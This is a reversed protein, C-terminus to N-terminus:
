KNRKKSSSRVDNSHSRIEPIPLDAIKCDDIDTFSDKMWNDFDQILEKYRISFGPIANSDGLKELKRYLSTLSLDSGEPTPALGIKDSGLVVFYIIGANHLMECKENIIKAPLNMIHALETQTPPVGKQTNYKLITAVIAATIKQSYNISFKNTDNLFNLTFVNQLSYTLVCGFLLILWSFQLWVLIIPILSFTGYIANYSSVYIQGSMFLYQLITFMVACISGSIAAYKINVKTNPILLFSLTFAIAYLIIPSLDLVIDIVPTLFPLKITDVLTSTMFLSVGSSVVILVPIILCIAIYDTLKQYISRSEKIDWIANFTDEISSLLSIVTWLLVVLGIGVFLGQSAQKLYSDVFSLVLEVTHHQGPFYSYLTSQLLNQFGFGRCIAFLMALAPVIALVTRYTLSMSQQQLGRDLFSRISLNLTKIIRVKMNSRPDHWVGNWLYNYQKVAWDVLKSLRSEKKTEVKPHPKGKSPTNNLDTHTDM